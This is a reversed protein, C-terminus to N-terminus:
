TEADTSVGLLEYFDAGSVLVLMQNLVFLLIIRVVARNSSKLQCTNPSSHQKSMFMSAM